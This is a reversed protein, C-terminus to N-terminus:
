YLRVIHYNEQDDNKPLGEAIGNRQCSRLWLAFKTASVKPSASKGYLNSKDKNKNLELVRIQKISKFFINRM